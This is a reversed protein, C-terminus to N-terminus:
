EEEFSMRAVKGDATLEFTYYIAREGSVLKYRLIQVAAMVSRDAGKMLTERDLFAFRKFGSLQATIKARTTQPIRSRWEPLLLDPERGEALERLMKLLGSSTQPDSDAQEPLASITLGPVYFSAVRTAIRNVADGRDINCLVIVTLKDDPYHYFVSSFGGVTSGNHLWLRHDRFVDMFLGFGANFTRGDSLRVPTRMQELSARKLIQETDFIREWKALDLVTTIIGGNPALLLPRLPEGKQWRGAEEVYGSARQPVIELPHNFRTANLGLPKFIHEVMFEEYSKGSVHAIVLGLLPYATNSYSWREGPTFDLAFPSMLKIFDAATYERRFSLINAAEWDKLGSTHTLLQRLTLAQWASPLGDLHKGLTDDLSLKGEEVMLLIAEATFQKTMSGIEYVTESTAPSNLELNALGYGAAKVLKGDRVVALSLGPINQKRIFAKVYEDVEDARAPTPLSCLCLLALVIQSRIKM